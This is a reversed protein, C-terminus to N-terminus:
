EYDKACKCTFKDECHVARDMHHPPRQVDRQHTSASSRTVAIRLYRSKSLKLHFAQSCQHRSYQSLLSSILLCVTIDADIGFANWLTEDDELVLLHETFARFRPRDPESLDQAFCRAACLSILLKFLFFFVCVESVVGICDWCSCSARSLRCYLPWDRLHHASLPRRSM